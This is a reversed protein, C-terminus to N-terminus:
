QRAAHGPTLMVVASVLVVGFWNSRM